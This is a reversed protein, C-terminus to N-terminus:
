SWQGPRDSAGPSATAHMARTRSGESAGSSAGAGRVADSIIQYAREFAEPGKGFPDDIMAPGSEALAGLFHVKAISEPFRRALAEYNHADFVFILEARKVLDPDLSTSSHTSLDIGLKRAADLAEPPASRASLPLLAASFYERHAGWCASAVQEAFPSRCINGKCVFAIRASRELA